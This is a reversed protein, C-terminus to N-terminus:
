SETDILTLRELTMTREGAQKPATDHGNNIVTAKFMAGVAGATGNGLLGAADCIRVIQGAKPPVIGSDDRVTVDWEVGDVLLIRTASIGNGNPLKVPEVQQRQSFRTIVFFNTFTNDTFM